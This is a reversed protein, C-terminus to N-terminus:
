HLLSRASELVRMVWPQYIRSFELVFDRPFSKWIILTLSIILTLYRGALVVREDGRLGSRGSSTFICRLIKRGDSTELRGSLGYGELIAALCVGYMILSNATLFGVMLMLALFLTGAVPGGFTLFARLRWCKIKRGYVCRGGIGPGIYVGKVPVGAIRAALAHGYEHILLRAFIVLVVTTNLFVLNLGLAYLATLPKKLPIANAPRYVFGQAKNM